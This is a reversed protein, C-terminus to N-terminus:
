RLAAREMASLAAGSLKRAGQLKGVIEVDAARLRAALLADQRDPDRLALLRLRALDADLSGSARWGWSTISVMASCSSLTFSLCSSVVCSPVRAPRVNTGSTSM